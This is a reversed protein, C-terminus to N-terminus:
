KNYDLEANLGAEYGASFAEDIMARVRKMIDEAQGQLIKNLGDQYGKNYSEEILNKIDDYFAYDEEENPIMGNMGYPDLEYRQINELPNAM